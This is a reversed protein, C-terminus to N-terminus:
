KGWLFKLAEPLRERWAKSDHSAGPVVLLKVNTRPSEKLIMAQLRQMNPSRNLTEDDSEKTGIGMYIREPWDRSQAAEKLIANDAMFLPTSELMLRGFVGSNHLVTYLAALGGYSAGGIGCSDRGSKVRYRSAVAPMVENLLFRPYDKGLPALVAPEYKADTYPLYEKTRQDDTGGTACAGNDIGVVIIPEIIEETILRSVTGPANWAADKFVAFGDNLYFVPYKRERNGPDSYGPPLLVRIARRNNFVKSTLQFTEVRCPRIEKEQTTGFAALTPGVAVMAFITGVIKKASSIQKTM